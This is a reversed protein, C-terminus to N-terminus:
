LCAKCESRISDRLKKYVSASNGTLKLRKVFAEFEDVKKYAENEMKKLSKFRFCM